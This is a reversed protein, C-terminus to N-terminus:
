SLAHPKSGSLSAEGQLWCSIRRLKREAFMARGNPTPCGEAKRGGLHKRTAASLVACNKRLSRIKEDGPIPEGEHCALPNRM